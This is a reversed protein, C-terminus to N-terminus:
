LYLVPVEKEQAYSIEALVGRAHEYHPLVFLTTIKGSQIIGKYFIDFKAGYDRPANDLFIDLYPLQNFVNYGDVELELIAKEFVKMNEEFYETGVGLAGVVMVSGEEISELVVDLLTQYYSDNESMSHM